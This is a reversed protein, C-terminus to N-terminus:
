HENSKTAIINTPKSVNPYVVGALIAVLVASIVIWAVKSQNGKVKDVESSVRELDTKQVSTRKLEKIEDELTGVRRGNESFRSEVIQENARISSVEGILTDLKESVKDMTRELREMPNEAM